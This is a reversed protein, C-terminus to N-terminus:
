GTWRASRLAGVRRECLGARAISSPRASATPPTPTRCLDGLVSVIDNDGTAAFVGLEFWMDFAAAVRESGDGCRKGRSGATCGRVGGGGGGGGCCGGGGGFVGGSVGGGVDDGGGDGGGGGSSDGVGVSASFTSRAQM